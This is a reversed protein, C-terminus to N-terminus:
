HERILLRHPAWAYKRAKGPDQMLYANMKQACSEGDLNISANLLLDCEQAKGLAERLVVLTGWSDWATPVVVHDRDVTDPRRVFANHM